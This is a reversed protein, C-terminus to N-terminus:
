FRDGSLSVPYVKYLLCFNFFWRTSTKTGTFVLIIVFTFLINKPLAAAKIFIPLAVNGMLLEALNAVIMGGFM